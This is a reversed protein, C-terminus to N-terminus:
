EEKAGAHGRAPDASQDCLYRRVCEAMGAVQQDQDRHWSQLDNSVGRHRRLIPSSTSSKLLWPRHGWNTASNREWRLTGHLQEIVTIYNERTYNPGALFDLTTKDTKIAHFGLGGGLVSRLNLEQLADTQFDASGYAFLRPNLNRSYRAGAQIANATTTPVAGPANNTSYVSNAYLSIDDHTTKRDATFALALNKTEVIERPSPLDSM